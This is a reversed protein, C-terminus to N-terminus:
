RPRAAIAATIAPAETSRPRPERRPILVRPICRLHHLNCELATPPQESVMAVFFALLLFDVAFFVDAFFDEPLLFLLVFFLLVLFDLVLFALLLFDLLLFDAERPVPRLVALLFLEPLLM